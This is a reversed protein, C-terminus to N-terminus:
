TQIGFEDLLSKDKLVSQWAEEPTKHQKHNCMVSLKRNNRTQGNPFFQFVKAKYRDLIHVSYGVFEVFGIPEKSDAKPEKMEIFNM